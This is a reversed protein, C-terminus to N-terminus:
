KKFKKWFIKWVIKFANFISQGKQKSYESYDIHVPVEKYKIKKKAIEDIIESAHEFRDMTIKIKSAAKKNMARYGNHTDSLWIGSLLWTIFIGIRLLIRKRKPVLKISSKLKFRSGLAIDCENNELPEILNGLDSLRHQGDSDFTVIYKCDKQTLAFDIGTRLSAGQGQNKHHAIVKGQEPVIKKIIKLSKDKSCDDVLVLKNFGNSVLNSVVKSIVKEENYIPIVFYIKSKLKDDIKFM